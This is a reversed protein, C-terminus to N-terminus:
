LDLIEYTLNIKIDSDGLIPAGGVSILSLSDNPRIFINTPGYTPYVNEFRRIQTTEAALGQDL